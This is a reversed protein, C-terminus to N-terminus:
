TEEVEVLNRIETSEHERSTPKCLKGAARQLADLEAKSHHFHKQGACVKFTQQQISHCLSKRELNIHYMM